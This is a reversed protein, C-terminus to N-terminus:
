GVREKESAQRNRMLLDEIHVNASAVRGSRFRTIPRKQRESRVEPTARSVGRVVVVNAARATERSGDVDELQGVETRLRAETARRRQLSFM